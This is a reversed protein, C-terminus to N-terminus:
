LSDVVCVFIFKSGSNNNNNNNNNDDNNSIQKLPDWIRYLDFQSMIFLATKTIDNISLM